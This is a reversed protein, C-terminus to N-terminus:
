PPRCWGRSPPALPRGARVRSAEDTVKLSTFPEEWNIPGRTMAALYLAQGAGQGRFEEPIDLTTIRQRHPALSPNYVDRVLGEIGQNGGPLVFTETAKYLDTAAKPKIKIDNALDVLYTLKEEDSLVTYGARGLRPFGLSPRGVPIVGQLVGDARPPTAVSLGGMLLSMAVDGVELGAPGALGALSAPLAINMLGMSLKGLAEETDPGYQRLFPFPSNPGPAALLKDLPIVLERGAEGVITPGNTVGGEAFRPLGGANRLMQGVLGSPSAMGINPIATAGQTSLSPVGRGMYESLVATLLWIARSNQVTATTNDSTVAVPDQKGGGFAGHMIGAVGGQGEAGYILPHLTQAVMGGLGETVPKLIAEHLTNGLQKGFEGPKTLLTKFLGEATHTLEDLQQQIEQQHKQALQARKEELQDEAQALELFLDKKAQAALVSRTAANEEGASEFRALYAEYDIAPATALVQLQKLLRM